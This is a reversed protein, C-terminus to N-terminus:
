DITINRTKILKSWKETEKTTLEELQEPTSTLPDQGAEFMRKLVGPDKLAQQIEQNLKLRINQPTGAPAIASMWAYAEVNAYGMEKMTPINPLQAPRKDSFSVLPIVKGAKVAGYGSPLDLLMLPVQGGMVDNMAPAGGKYPIHTLDLRTEEKFLEMAMHHPSGNGPTAYNMKGPNKAAYDFLQKADKIGSSPAAVLLLHVRAMLGIPSFDKKPQYSLTKYLAPNFILIGNDATMITYGDPASRAVHDAAIAAAAGPRNEVIVPQGVQKSVQQGINRTLVDTGGGAPYGVIWRINKAPYNQAKDQAQAATASITALSILSLYQFFKRSFM